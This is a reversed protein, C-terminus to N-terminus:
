QFLDGADLLLTGGPNEARLVALYGAFVSAGGQRLVTGDALPAEHPLVWGHLDNTGVLTLHIPEGDPAKQPAQAPSVPLTGRPPTRCSTVSLVCLLLTSLRAM